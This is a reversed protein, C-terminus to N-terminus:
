DGQRTTPVPTEGESNRKSANRPTKEVNARTAFGLKKNAEMMLLLANRLADFPLLRPEEVQTSTDGGVANQQTQEYSDIQGFYAELSELGQIQYDGVDYVVRERSYEPDLEDVIYPRLSTYAYVVAIHADVRYGRLDVGGSISNLYRKGMLNSVQDQAHKLAERIQQKDDTNEGSM